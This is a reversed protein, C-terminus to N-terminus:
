SLSGWLDQLDRLRRMCGAVCKSFISCSLSKTFLDALNNCPKIQLINIEGNVQLEHPYFFKSTIHKTVNSKVYGSRMQVVCAANDEYIITPSDIPEVGCSVQIHNIV